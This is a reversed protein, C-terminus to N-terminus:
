GTFCERYHTILKERYTEKGFMQIAKDRIKKPSYKELIEFLEYISVAMESSNNTPCLLGVTDDIFKPAIGTSTAVIPLGCAAAEILALGFGEKRSPSIYADSAQYYTILDHPSVPPHFSINDPSSPLTLSESDHAGVIHFHIDTITDPLNNVAEILIDVGKEKRFNAVTLVHKKQTPWKLKEQADNKEEKNPPLYLSEDVFNGIQYLKNGYEPFKTKIDNLLEPGVLLIRDASQLTVKILTILSPNNINKYWDSGHITLITKFGLKKLTPICLGDPYLWHVHVIDYFNNSFHKEIKSSLSRIIIEPFRKKPFSLYNIRDASFNQTLLRAKNKKKRKTFPISYPTPVILSQNIKPLEALLEVHDKIFKGQFPHLIDPYLHSIVAVRLKESPKNEPPMM